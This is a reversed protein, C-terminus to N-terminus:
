AAGGGRRALLLAVVADHQYVTANHLARESWVDAGRDLLFAVTELHGNV